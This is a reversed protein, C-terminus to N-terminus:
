DILINMLRSHKITLMQETRKMDDDMKISNCAYLMFAIFLFLHKWYFRFYSAIVAM